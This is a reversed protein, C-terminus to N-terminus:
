PPFLPFLNPNASVVSRRISCILGKRREREAGIADVGEIEGDGDDAPDEADKGDDDDNDDDDDDDDNGDEDEEDDVDADGADDLNLTLEQTKHEAGLNTQVGCSSCFHCIPLPMWQELYAKVHVKVVNARTFTMRLSSSSNSTNGVKAPTPLANESGAFVRVRM